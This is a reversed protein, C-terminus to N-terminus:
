LAARPRLLTFAAAVGAIFPQEKVWGQSLSGHVSRLASSFSSWGLAGVWPKSACRSRREVSVNRVADSLFGSGYMVGVIAAARLAVNAADTKLETKAM